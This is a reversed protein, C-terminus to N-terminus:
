QDIGMARRVKEVYGRTRENLKTVEKNNAPGYFQEELLKMWWLAKYKHFGMPRM